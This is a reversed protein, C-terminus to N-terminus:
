LNTIKTGTAATNSMSNSISTAMTASMTHDYGRAGSGAAALMCSYASGASTAASPSQLCPNNSAPVNNPAANGMASFASTASGYGPMAAAMSTMNYGDSQHHGLQQGAFLNNHFGNSVNSPTVHGPVHGLGLQSALMDSSSSPHIDLRRCSRM